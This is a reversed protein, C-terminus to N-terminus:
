PTITEVLLTQRRIAAPSYPLPVFRGAAWAPFLSRYLPSRPDGSQGPTNTVMAADWDALDMVVRFSAGATQNDSNGTANLTNAYGGRPLPGPSLWRSLSDHVFRDLPHAIRAHHLKEDGYRWTSIDAGFRTVLDSVTENLARFLIFDRTVEPREGLLSDPATLWRVVHTLPVTRMVPRAMLPLVISATHSALRREWLAYLAAGHSNVDLVGNWALLTDRAARARATTFEINRLLPVLARAALATEDHQLAMMQPLTAGKMTDLVEQLRNHRYPEAWSRAIADPRAYTPAVNYANATGVYGRAPSSEHPLEPIPLFGNWEFRGDGPVPVLGDWNSRVPAIGATQWGIAGSTDAWVWNLTPMHAYALAARAETWTRAQDLRLSALYPAGGPELWAARLAVAVRASANLTLVPGHRTYLLTVLEPARGRVVITDYVVRMAEPQGQYLYSLTDTPSLAYTYLDETDIGFITLGWAGHANHGIAVGPIAPEGGGIVDWGPATLHVMYRLSPVAITRHPDNAVIPKGSATRAGAIVWNNSEWGDAAERSTADIFPPPTLASGEFASDARRVSALLEDARFVPSNKSASYAALLMDDDAVDLLQAVLSDVRLRAPMPEPEFRRRQRVADEGLLRVARATVTEDRANSALANHRSVVVEPTWRGPSIGLWQLEPPLLAPNQQVQAVYANIGDVFAGIIPAGRPHYHALETDMVGRYRMLRAARDRAIWRPGLVEAMTGTAQRRWLELQFLRDRAASYGQAFFLDHENQARIHMIGASDRTLTVTAQLGPVRLAAADPSQAATTLPLGVLTLLAWLLPRTM